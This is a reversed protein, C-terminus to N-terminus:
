QLRADKDQKEMHSIFRDKLYKLHNEVWSKLKEEDRAELAEAVGTHIEVDKEPPLEMLRAKTVILPVVKELLQVMIQNKTAKALALHLKVTVDSINEERDAAERMEDMIRRVNEVDEETARRVALEASKKELIERVEALAMFDQEEVLVEALDSGSPLCFINSKRKVYYGKGPKTELIDVTVLAHLAERISSRGVNMREMLEKESPLKDGPQLDENKIHKLLRRIIIRSISERQINVQELFDIM